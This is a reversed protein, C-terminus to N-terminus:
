NEEAYSAILTQLAGSVAATGATVNNTMVSFVIMHSPDGDSPLIYGSYCRVGNMSGSKCYIRSRLEDPYRGFMGSLTSKKDMPCALSELYTDFSRTKAMARLFKVFYEPSVYNKRSLGSGDYVRCSDGTKAGAAALAQEFSSRCKDYEASGAMQKGVMHMLTEAFFNDSMKNTDAIIEAITPSFTSGIVTMDDQGPAYSGYETFHLDTRIFGLPSIDGFGGKAEIGKSALYRFFYFACTFAGYENDCELTCGRGNIPFQGRIEGFPGFGTNIYFLTNASNAKSTISINNVTMWPTEPYRPRVFNRGGETAAPTVYFHQANEYFNLGRPASGYYTGIDEMTWGDSEPNQMDLFRPDGIIRGEIKKIGADDLLAKWKGFLSSLSEACPSTSGTTPDGGGIIYLDGKLVGKEIEGTYGLRTEFRFDEGLELLAVGTTILKMNSAPVLKQVSNVCAVTDGNMKMALTSFLGTRFTNSRSTQLAKQGAGGQASAFTASGALLLLAVTLSAASRKM